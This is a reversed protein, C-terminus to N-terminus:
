QLPNGSVWGPLRSSSRERRGRWGTGRLHLTGRCNHEQELSVKVKQVSKQACKHRAIGERTSPAAASAAATHHERERHHNGVMSCTETAACASRAHGEMALRGSRPQQCPSGMRKSRRPLPFCWRSMIDIVDFTNFYYEGTRLSLWYSGRNELLLDFYLCNILHRLAFAHADGLISPYQWADSQCQPSPYASRQM